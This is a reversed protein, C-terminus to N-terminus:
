EATVLERRRYWARYPRRRRTARRRDSLLVVPTPRYTRPMRDIEVASLVIAVLLTLWLRRLSRTAGREAASDEVMRQIQM